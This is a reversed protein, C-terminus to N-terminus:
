TPRPDSEWYQIFDNGSLDAKNGVSVFSSLGSGLAQARAM